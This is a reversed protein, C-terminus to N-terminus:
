QMTEGCSEGSPVPTTEASKKLEERAKKKKKKPNASTALLTLIAEDTISHDSMIINDQLLPLGTVKKTGGPLLMVTFLFQAVYEGARETLVPYGELLEHRHCESIGLRCMKEDEIQRASFPLTPFRTTVERLFQRAMPTKLAYNQEVNRRFVSTRIDSPKSKGEGSSVVVDVAYVENLEFEIPSSKEDIPDRISFAKVGELVHQKLQHCTISEVLNCKFSEVCSKMVNVVATSKGGVVISRLAAESAAWAARIVDAKRGRVEPEGIVVTHAAVATYGDIHTGLHIKVLDGEKLTKSESLLPSYNDVLENVTICTPFAVGKRIKEGKERKTYLKDVKQDILADGAKCLTAIDAGPVCSEIVTQLAVNTLDAATRYKTVVDPRTCDVPTDTSANM